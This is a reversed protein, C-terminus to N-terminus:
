KGGPFFPSPSFACLPVSVEEVVAGMKVFKEVAARVCKDVELDLAPHEFGERLIAIKVRKVGKEKSSLVIESYKPVDAPLPAGLQRDDIHDYGAIAQLLATDLVTRAMPGVHDVAPDSSLQFPPPPHPLLLLPLLATSPSVCSEPTPFSALRRSSASSAASHHQSHSFLHKATLALYSPIGRVIRISGGQDGGIGTDVVGAGILAGCGSSSGGTSFGDAYPNQM